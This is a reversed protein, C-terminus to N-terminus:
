KRHFGRPVGPLEPNKHNRYILRPSEWLSFVQGIGKWPCTALNVGLSLNRQGQLGTGEQGLSEEGSHSM